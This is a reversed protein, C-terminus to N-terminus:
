RKAKMEFQMIQNNYRSTVLLREGVFLLRTPGALGEQGESLAEQIVDSPDLRGAVRDDIRAAVMRRLRPRFRGLLEDTATQDGGRIRDILEATDHDSASLLVRGRIGSGRPIEFRLCTRRLFSWFVGFEMGYLSMIRHVGNERSGWPRDPGLVWDRIEVGFKHFHGQPEHYCHPLNEIM